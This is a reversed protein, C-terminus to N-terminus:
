ADSSRVDVNKRCSIKRLRQRVDMAPVPFMLPEM